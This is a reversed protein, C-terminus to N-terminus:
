NKYTFIWIHSLRDQVSSLQVSLIFPKFLRANEVLLPPLYDTFTTPNNIIEEMDAVMTFVAERSLNAVCQNFLTSDGDELSDSVSEIFVQTSDKSTSIFLNEENVWTNDVLHHRNDLESLNSDQEYIEGTLYLVDSNLHFEFESWSRNDLEKYPLSNSHTYLTLFSHSKKKQLIKAFVVDENLSSKNRKADIVQEILRKEFSLVMYGPGIYTALFEDQGLPYITITKGRYKEVKPLFNAPAYEQLMDELLQHDSDGIRFYLVQDRITNPQHFSVMMHSMQSSLGHANNIAYENLHHLLFEFLGPFQLRTLEEGYNLTPLINLLDTINESELVSQCDAPVLSYLNVERNRETMDLRTFAYFGVALCFLLVSVSVSLKAVTKLRM